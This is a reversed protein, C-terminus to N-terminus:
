QLVAIKGGDPAAGQLGQLHVQAIQAVLLTQVAMDIGPRLAGLDHCPFGDVINQLVQFAALDRDKIQGAAGRLQIRM